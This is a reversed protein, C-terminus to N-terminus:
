REPLFSHETRSTRSCRDLDRGSGESSPNRLCSGGAPHRLEPRLLVADLVRQLVPEQEQEHLLLQVLEPEPKEALPVRELRLLLEERM